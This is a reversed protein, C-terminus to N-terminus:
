PFYGALIKSPVSISKLLTFSSYILNWGIILVTVVVSFPFVTWFCSSSYSLSTPGANPLVLSSCFSAAGFM